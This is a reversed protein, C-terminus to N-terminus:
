SRVEIPDGLRASIRALCRTLAPLDGPELDDLVLERVHEVHDPATGRVLDRGEETLIAVTRRGPGPVRERRVLGRRELRSVVHSLRSLSGSALGALDSMRLTRDDTESLMALVTYEFFTLGAQEGLRADLAAPLRMLTGVLALWAEREEPDLWRPTTPPATM